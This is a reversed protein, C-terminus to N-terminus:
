HYTTTTPRTQSNSHTPTTYACAEHPRQSINTMTFRAIRRMLHLLGICTGVALLSHDQNFAVYNLGAMASSNLRTPWTNDTHAWLPRNADCTERYPFDFITDRHIGVLLRGLARHLANPAQYKPQQNDRIQWGVGCQRSRVTWLKFYVLSSSSTFSMFRASYIVRYETFLM